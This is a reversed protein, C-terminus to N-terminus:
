FPLDTTEEITNNQPTTEQSASCETVVQNGSAVQENNTAELKKYARVSTYYKGNWERSEVECELKVVEDPILSFEDIRENGFVEVAVKKPFQPNTTTDILYSAVKWEKGTSQSVGEQAGIMKIVKGELIM